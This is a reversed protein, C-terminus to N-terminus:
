TVQARAKRLCDEIQVILSDVHVPKRLVCRFRKQEEESIVSGTVVIVPIRGTSPQEALERYVDAGALRPLALDLVVADPPNQEVVRLASLGDEVPVVAYGAARLATAYVNRLYPDDEVVLITTKRVTSPM